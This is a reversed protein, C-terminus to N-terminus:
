SPHTDESLIYPFVEPPFLQKFINVFSVEPLWKKNEVDAMVIRLWSSDRQEIEQVVKMLSKCLTCRPSYFELLTARQRSALALALAREEADGQEEPSLPPSPMEKGGNKGWQGFKTTLSQIQDQFHNLTLNFVRFGGPAVKAYGLQRSRSLKNVAGGFKSEFVKSGVSHLPKLPWPLELKVDGCAGQCWQMAPWPPRNEFGDVRMSVLPFLSRPSNRHISIVQM